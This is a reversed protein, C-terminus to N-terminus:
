PKPPMLEIARIGKSGAGPSSSPDAPLSLDFVTTIPSGRGDVGRMVIQWLPIPVNAGSCLGGATAPCSLTSELPIRFQDRAELTWQGRYRGTWSTTGPQYITTEIESFTVPTGRIESVVLDFTYYWLQRGRNERQELKLSTAQWAVVDTKGQLQPRLAACGMALMLVVGAAAATRYATGGAHHRM